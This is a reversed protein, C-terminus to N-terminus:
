ALSKRNNIRIIEETITTTSTATATAANKLTRVLPFFFGHTVNTAVHHHHHKYAYLTETLVNPRPARIPFKNVSVYMAEINAAAKWKVGAIFLLKNTIFEM